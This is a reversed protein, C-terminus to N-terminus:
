GQAYLRRVLDEISPEVVTVDRLEV